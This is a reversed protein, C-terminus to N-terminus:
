FKIGYILAPWNKNNDITSTGFDRAEGFQVGDSQIGAKRISEISATDSNYVLISAVFGRYCIQANAQTYGSQLKSVILVADYPTLDMSIKQGAFKGGTSNAWLLKMQTGTGPFSLGM